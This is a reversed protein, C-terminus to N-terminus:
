GQKSSTQIKVLVDTFKEVRLFSQVANRQDNQPDDRQADAAM